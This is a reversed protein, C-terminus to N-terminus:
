DKYGKGEKVLNYLPRFSSCKEYINDVNLYKAIKSNHVAHAYRPRQNLRSMKELYEKPDNINEPHEINKDPVWGTIVRTVASIDALIWAEIEQVPILICIPQVVNSPLIIRDLLERRRIEPSQRDSDYCVIFRQFDGSEHYARLQKAGKRLMEACGGYGKGKVTINQNNAILRVLSTLTEVDSKDEAIIAYM